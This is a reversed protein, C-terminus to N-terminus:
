FGSFGGLGEPMDGDDEVPAPAPQHQAQQSDRPELPRLNGIIPSYGQAKEPTLGYKERNSKGVNAKVFHTNGYQNNSTERVILDLMAKPQGAKTTFVFLSPNEEVPIVVSVKGDVEQTRAKLLSLLDIQGIFNTNTNTKM